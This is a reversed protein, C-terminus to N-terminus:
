GRVLLVIKAENSNDESTAEIGEDEGDCEEGNGDCNM